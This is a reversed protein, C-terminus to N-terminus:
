AELALRTMAPRHGRGIGALPLELSEKRTAMAIDETTTIHEAPLRGRGRVVRVRRPRPGAPLDHHPGRDDAILHPDGTWTSPSRGEARSPNFLHKAVIVDYAALRDQEANDQSAEESPAAAATKRAAPPGPLPRSAALDRALWAALFVTLSALAVNVAILWKSV